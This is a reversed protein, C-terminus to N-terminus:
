PVPATYTLDSKDVWGALAIGDPYAVQFMVDKGNKHKQLVLGEVGADLPFLNKPFRLQTKKNTWARVGAPKPPEYENSKRFKRFFNNM